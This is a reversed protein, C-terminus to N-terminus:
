RRRRLPRAIDGLLTRAKEGHVAHDSLTQFQRMFHAIDDATDIFATGVDTAVEGTMDDYLHFGRPMLFPKPTGLDVVSLHVNPRYSLEILHEIEAATAAPSGFVWRVAAESIIEHWERSPDELLALRAARAAWWEPGPDDVGEAVIMADTYARTQLIGPISDPVWSRLVSAREELDRIRGQIAAASRVLVSRTTVHAATKAEALEILRARQEDSVPHANTHLADAYAAAEAPTFPPGSGREARSVKVQTLGALAAVEAQLRNGRIAILLRSM